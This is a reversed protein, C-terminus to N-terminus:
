KGKKGKAAAAPASMCMVSAACLAVMIGAPIFTGIEKKMSLEGMHEAIFLGWVPGVITIAFNLITLFPMLTKKDATSFILYCISLMMVGMVRAIQIFLTDLKGYTYNMDIVLQPMFGFQVGYAGYWFIM